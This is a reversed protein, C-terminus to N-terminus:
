LLRAPGQRTTGWYIVQWDRCELQNSLTGSRLQVSMGPPGQILSVRQNLGTLLSIAQAGDLKISTPTGLLPQIDMSPNRALPTTIQSITVSPSCIPIGNEWFLIEEVLPVVKMTQLVRLVPEFSFIATNTQVLKVEKAANLRLLTKVFSAEGCIQIVVSPPKKILLEEMRLITGLALLQGDAILCALSQHSLFKSGRSDTKLFNKRDSDKVKHFIKFDVSCQLVIGHRTRTRQDDSGTYVGAICLGEIVTGRPGKKKDNGNKALIPQLEEKLEYLMDERLLRFTNDLYDAIRTEKSNPDDLLAAHRFFAKKTCQIEDATPVISIDRFNIFDNDHRGGPGEPTSAASTASATSLIEKILNAAARVEPHESSTLRNFISPQKARDRYRSSDKNEMRLLYALLQAFVSEANKDLNGKDFEECFKNWFIPPDLIHLLVTDLVDGLDNARLLFGIVTSGLGNIFKASLDHRMAQQVASLGNKSEVIKSVCAAPDEQLSLGELFLTKHREVDTSGSLIDLFRKNLQQNRNM